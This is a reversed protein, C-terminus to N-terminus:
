APRTPEDPPRSLPQFRMGVLTQGLLGALVAGAAAELRMPPPLQSSATPAFGLPAYFAAQRATTLLFLERGDPPQEQHRELLCRVIHTGIGQGRREPVVYVSALEWAESGIPRIQGCGWLEPVGAAAVVEAVLFCERRLLIPNMREALMARQVFPMDAATAPRVHIAPGLPVAGPVVEGSTSAM